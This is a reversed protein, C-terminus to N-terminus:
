YASVMVWFLLYLLIGIEGCFLSVELDDNSYQLEFDLMFSKEGSMKDIYVKRYDVLTYSSTLCSIIHFTLSKDNWKRANINCNTFVQCKLRLNDNHNTKFKALKIHKISFHPLDNVNKLIKDGQGPRWGLYYEIQSSELSKIQNFSTINHSSLKRVGALGIGELQRLVMPIDDWCKGTICTCLKLANLLTKPNGNSVCCDIFSRLIRGIHQFVFFKDQKFNQYLKTFESKNPFELGGLEHQVLLVIKEFDSSILHNKDNIGIPFKILSSGNIEKFLKKETRKLRSNKFESSQSIVTLIDDISNKNHNKSGEILLKMTEFQIYHRVMSDGYTTTKYQDNEIEMIKFAVLEKLVQEVYRTLRENINVDGNSPIVNYAAPNAKYRIYFFTSKLWKVASQVSTITKLYVEASLNERLHLHLCSELRESGKLLREYHFQKDYETMIISLGETEFQPRGARGIMQQIDLKSYDEVASGSWMKTGKVIVLYAPLNVGVALTSTSCLIKINGKIFNYEVAQRDASSLGAHHYAIGKFCLIKLEKDKVPKSNLIHITRTKTLQHFFKDSIFKSTSITSSRTPCFILVPKSNYHQNLISLLKQNLFGDFVFDNSHKKYGYVKQALAVPRFDEGFVFTQANSDSNSDYKIWASVDHINPVTASLAIIRLSRCINKMRTVTVELASGRNERLIHVEDVLLLKVSDFLRSYDSWKRTILDWKEPTTVVINARKMRDTEAFPTDSTLAGVTLGLPSFKSTWDQVREACLSKTPAIYLVKVSDTSSEKVALLRLIALEFLVTKGSGTPSSIVCNSDARYIQNLCASQMKNFHTFRFLARGRGPIESTPVCEISRISHSSPHPQNHNPDRSTATSANFCTTDSSSQYLIANHSSSVPNGLATGNQFKGCANSNPKKHKGIPLIPAAM